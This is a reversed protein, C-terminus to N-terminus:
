LGNGNADRSEESIDAGFTSSRGRSFDGRINHRLLNNRAGYPLGRLIRLFQSRAEDKTHQELAKYRKCIDQRWEERPRTSVIQLLCLSCATFLVELAYAMEPKSLCLIGWGICPKSMLVIPPHQLPESVDCCQTAGTAGLFLRAQM